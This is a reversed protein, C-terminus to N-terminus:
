PGKKYSDSGTKRVLFFSEQETTNKKKKWLIWFLLCRPLRTSMQLHPYHEYKTHCLFTVNREHTVLFAYKLLIHNHSSKFSDLFISGNPASHNYRLLSTWKQTPLVLIVFLFSFGTGGGRSLHSWSPYLEHMIRNKNQFVSKWKVQLSLETRTTKCIYCSVWYIWEYTMLSWIKKVSLQRPIERPDFVRNIARHKDTPFLFCESM